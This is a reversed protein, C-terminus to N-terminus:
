AAHSQRCITIVEDASVFQGMGSSIDALETERHSIEEQQRSLMDVLQKRSVSQLQYLSLTSGNEASEAASRDAVHQVPHHHSPAIFTGGDTPRVDAKDSRLEDDKQTAFLM